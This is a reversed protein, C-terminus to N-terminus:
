FFHKCNYKKQEILISLRQARLKIPYLMQSRILLNHTRTGGPAGIFCFPRKPSRKTKNTSYLAPASECFHTQGCAFPLRLMGTAAPLSRRPPSALGATM